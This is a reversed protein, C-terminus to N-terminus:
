RVPRAGRREALRETYPPPEDNILFPQIRRYKRFFPEMDVALDKIVPLGRLPEITVHKGIEQVLVKCALRNHGNIMLADSGCVGHACSRRFTLSGDQYGKIQVLLDLCGTWPNPM